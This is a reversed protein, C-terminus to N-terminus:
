QKLLKYMLQNNQSTIKIFLLDYNFPSVDLQLDDATNNKKFYLLQGITNYVEIDFATQLDSSITVFNSTPNPFISISNIFSNEEISLTCPLADIGGNCLTSDTSVCVDDILYYSGYNTCTGCNLTTTDTNADDYFNGLMVYNYASDAVISGSIRLWNLTDTIITTARLHAFNDIPAPNSASYSVTSLRLGINNSPSDSNDNFGGRVTYFSLFYKQGIILPQSLQTGIQERENPVTRSWTALGVYAGCNRHDSQYCFLNQPVGVTSPSACANFYDPTYSSTCYKSWGTALHVEDFTTPCSDRQEFGFNPCINNQGYGNGMYATCFLLCFAFLINSYRLM